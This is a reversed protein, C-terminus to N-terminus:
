RQPTRRPMTPLAPSRCREARRAARAASAGCGTDLVLALDRMLDGIAGPCRVCSSPEATCRSPRLGEAQLQQLGAVPLLRRETANRPLPFVCPPLSPLPLALVQAAAISGFGGRGRGQHLLATPAPQAGDHEPHAAQEGAQHGHNALHGQDSAVGHHGQARVHLRGGHRPRDHDRRHDPVRLRRAGGGGGFCGDESGGSRGGSGSGGRRQRRRPRRQLRTLRPHRRLRWLKAERAAAEQAREAAALKAAEAAAERKAEREAKQQAELLRDRMARAEALVSDQVGGCSRVEHRAAAFARELTSLEGSAIAARLGAEAREAASAAAKPVAAPSPAPVAPPLPRSAEGSEDGAATTRGAKQKEKSKKSRVVWPPHKSRARGKVQGAAEEALLEEMAADARAARAAKAAEAAELVELAADARMPQEEKQEVASVEGSKVSKAATCSQPSDVPEDPPAATSIAALEPTAAHLRILEAIEAGIATKGIIEAFQLATSGLSTQLDVSAGHKLLERVMELQGNTAAAHLLTDTTTRDDASRGGVSIPADVPGGKRM